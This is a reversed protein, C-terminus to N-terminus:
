GFTLQLGTDCTIRCHRMVQEALRLYLSKSTNTSVRLFSLTLYLKDRPIFKALLWTPPDLDCPHHIGIAILMTTKNISLHVRKHTSRPFLWIRSRSGRILNNLEVLTQEFFETTKPSQFARLYCLDGSHYHSTANDPYCLVM